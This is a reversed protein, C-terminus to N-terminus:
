ETGPVGDGGEALENLAENIIGRAETEVDQSQKGACSSALRSPLGLLKARASAIIDSWAQRVLEAPILENRKRQEEIEATNAQHHTLRAREADYDYVTGDEGIGLGRRFDDILWKGFAECPYRGADDQPPPNDEQGRQRVRRTTVGLLGAAQAQTLSETDIRGM